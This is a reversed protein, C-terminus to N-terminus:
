RSSRGVGGAVDAGALVAKASVISVVGGAAGGAGASSAASSEPHDAVPDRVDLLGPQGARGLRTRRDLERDRARDDAGAVAAPPVYVIWSVERQGVPCVGIVAVAVSAAPLTLAALAAKASVISM